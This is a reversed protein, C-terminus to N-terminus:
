YLENNHSFYHTVVNGDIVIKCCWAHIEYEDDAYEHFFVSKNIGNFADSVLKNIHIKTPTNDKRLTVMYNSKNHNIKLIRMSKNNRVNGMNSISYNNYDNIIRYVEM